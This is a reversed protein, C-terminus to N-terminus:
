ARERGGSTAERIAAPWHGLFEDFHAAFAALEASAAPDLATLDYAVDVATSRDGVPDLSVSVTGAKAGPTVRSYSIARPPAAATVIWTTDVGDHDISFVTGPDTDDADDGSPFRPSWGPAWRQEGRATFLWFAEEIPLPLEFRGSLAVRACGAGDHSYKPDTSDM